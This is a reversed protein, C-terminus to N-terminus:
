YQQQIIEKVQEPAIRKAIIKKDKDLLYLINSSTVDYAEKYSFDYPNWANVWGYLHYQNIFNVWKEKGEIGGLMNVAVVELRNTKTNLERWLDYLQPISKKCHGCDSEWFYLVIYDATLHHLSFFDGVYPNRKLATDSEAAMFHDDSVRVMEIDPSVKGILLPDLKEVREKLKEIFDPSSWTAEPIYYKNAIYAYVADMGVYKSTAYHNFLTSLMYKFLLTDSRSKEILWDVERYISDPHPYIWKEIYTKLKSQYIPSRLLRVDSLDFYDFYHQKYYKVQFSSDTLNGNEDRPPDPVEIEKLSYLFKSLFLEPNNDMIGQVYEKVETNVEELRKRASISDDKVSSNNIRSQLLESEKRKTDLFTLYQYFLENEKSGTIKTDSLVNITDTIVSFEQDDDILLDFRRQNPFFITYMGPPLSENGSIRAEGASNTFFTDKLVLSESFYHGFLLSDNPFSGIKLKINYQSYSESTLLLPLFSFLIIKIRNRLM